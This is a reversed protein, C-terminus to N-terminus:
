GALKGNIFVVPAVGFLRFSSDMVECLTYSGWDTSYGLAEVAETFSYALLPKKVYEKSNALNIPATGIVIPLGATAEVPSIISTPVESTYVGHKYGTAAM